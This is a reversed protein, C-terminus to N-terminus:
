KKTKKLPCARPDYSPLTSTRSTPPSLAATASQSAAVLTARVPASPSTSATTRVTATSAVVPLRANRIRLNSGTILMVQAGAPVKGVGIAVPGILSAAVRQALPLTKPGSYLVQSESIPGVPTQETVGTVHFALSKLSLAVTATAAPDGTGGIVAVSVKRAPLHTGFIPGGLFASVAIQDEPQVPFVISGYNFGKYEYFTNSDSQIPLTLEPVTDPNINRYAFFLNTMARIGFGSDVTLYPALDGVLANDAIPNGVGRRAIASAIVRLFEHDRTIRGLDGTGDYKWVSGDLYSLHRARVVALAQFAGVKVCGTTLVNLGSYSDKVKNPFYMKMGGMSKVISQFTDFNLEVFHNIPIGFDDEIVKVLQSPGIYLASDIRNTAGPRANPLFTDRPFSLLSVHHTRGNLRLVMVVDSNVGNVGNSCLGFAGGQKSDLSCRDTSGILLINVIPSNGVAVLNKVAIHHIQDNRYILYGGASGILLVIVVAGAIASRILRRRRKSM